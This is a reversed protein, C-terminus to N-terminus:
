KKDIKKILQDLEKKLIEENTRLDKIEQDKEKEENELVSQNKKLEENESSEKDLKRRDNETLRRHEDNRREGDPINISLCKLGISSSSSSCGVVFLTGIVDNRSNYCQNLAGNGNNTNAAFEGVCTTSILTNGVSLLGTTVFENLEFYNGGSGTTSTIKNECSTLNNGAGSCLYGVNGGGSVVKLDNYASNLNEILIFTAFGINGGVLSALGAFYNASSKQGNLNGTSIAQGVNGGINTLLSFSGAFIFKSFSTSLNDVESCYQINGINGGINSVSSSTISNIQLFLNTTTGDVFAVDVTTKKV